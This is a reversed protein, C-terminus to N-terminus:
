NSSRLASLIFFFLTLINISSKRLDTTEEAYPNYGEFPSDDSTFTNAFTTSSFISPSKTLCIELPPFSKLYMAPPLVLSYLVNFILSTFFPSTKVKSLILFAM